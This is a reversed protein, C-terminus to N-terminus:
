RGPARRLRSAPRARGVGGRNLFRVAGRAILEVHREVLNALLFSRVGGDPERNQLHTQRMKRLTWTAAFQVIKPCSPSKEPKEAACFFARPWLFFREALGAGQGKGYFQSDSQQAVHAGVARPVHGTLATFPGRRWSARGDGPRHRAAGTAAGSLSTASGLLLASLLLRKMSRDGREVAVFAHKLDSANPRTGNSGCRSM